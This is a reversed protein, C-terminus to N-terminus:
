NLGGLGFDKFSKDLKAKEKEPLMQSIKSKATALKSKEDYEKLQTTAKVGLLFAKLAAKGALQHHQIYDKCAKEVDNLTKCQSFGQNLETAIENAEEETTQLEKAVQKILHKLIRDNM